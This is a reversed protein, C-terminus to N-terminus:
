SVLWPTEEEFQTGAMPVDTTLYDSRTTSADM